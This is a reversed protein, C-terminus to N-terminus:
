RSPRQLDRHQKAKKAADQGQVCGFQVMACRAAPVHPPVAADDSQLRMVADDPPMRELRPSPRSTTALQSQANVFHPDVQLDGMVPMPTLDVM